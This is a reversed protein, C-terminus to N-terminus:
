LIDRLSGGFIGSDGIHIMRNGDPRYSKIKSEISIPSRLLNGLHSVKYLLDTSVKYSQVSTCMPYNKGRRAM